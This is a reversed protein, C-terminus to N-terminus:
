SAGPPPRGPSRSSASRPIRRRAARRRGSRRRDGPQRRRAARRRRRADARFSHGLAASRRRAQLRGHQRLRAGPSDEVLAGGDSLELRHDHRVRRDAPPGVDRVQQAARVARDPRPPPPGRGGDAAGHRHSGARRRRDRRGGQGDRPDHRACLADKREAFLQAARFLIEARRPAPVLRWGAYADEAAAIARDVDDKSSKAFLGILDDTNAPSRNEFTEGSAAPVWEGDIFNGYTDAAM